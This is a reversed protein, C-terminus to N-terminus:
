VPSPPLPPPLQAPGPSLQVPRKVLHAHVRKALLVPAGIWAMVTLAFAPLERALPLLLKADEDAEDATLDTLSWQARTALAIPSNARGAFLWTLLRSVLWLGQWASALTKVTLGDNEKAEAKRNTSGPPRGRRRKGEL